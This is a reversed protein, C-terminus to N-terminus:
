WATVRLALGFSIIMSDYEPSYGAIIFGRIPLDKEISGSESTQVMLRGGYSPVHLFQGVAEHLSLVSYQEAAFHLVQRRYYVGLSIGGGDNFYYVPRQVIIEEQRYGLFSYSGKVTLHVNALTRVTADMGAGSLVDLPIGVSVRDGAVWSFGSGPFANKFRPDLMYHAAIGHKSKIRAVLQEGPVSYSYALLSEGPQVLPEDESKHGSFVLGESLPMNIACGTTLFLLFSLCLQIQFSRKMGYLM